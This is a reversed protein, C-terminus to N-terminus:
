RGGHMQEMMEDTTYGWDKQWQKMDSVEKTQASIIDSGMKKLEDHEAREPILKAMDIAGEHHAIMMEIFAKDFKDGSLGDLEKTMDSMSMTSHNTADEQTYSTDIGMMRMMGTNNQNVAQGAVFGAIVVGLLLGIIGFMTNEKNM